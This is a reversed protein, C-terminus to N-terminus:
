DRRDEVIILVAALWGHRRVDLAFRIFATM